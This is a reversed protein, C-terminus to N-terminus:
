QRKRSGEVKRHPLYAESRATLYLDSAPQGSSRTAGGDGDGLGGGGAWCHSHIAGSPIELSNRSYYWPIVFTGCCSRFVVDLAFSSAWISASAAERCSSAALERVLRLLFHPVINTRLLDGKLEFSHERLQGMLVCRFLCAGFDLTDAMVWGEVDGSGCLVPVVGSPGLLDGFPRWLNVAICLLPM